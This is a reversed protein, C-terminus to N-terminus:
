RAVRGEEIARLDEVIVRDYPGDKLGEAVLVVQDSRLGVVTYKQSINGKDPDGTIIELGIPLVLEPQRM